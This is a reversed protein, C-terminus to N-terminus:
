SIWYNWKTLDFYDSIEQATRAKDEIIIEWCTSTWSWNVNRWLWLNNHWTITWFTGTTQDQQVGDIYLTITTATKIWTFLHVWVGWYSTKYAWYFNNNYIMNFGADAWPWDWYLQWSPYWMNDVLFMFASNPWFWSTWVNITFDSSLWNLSWWSITARQLTCMNDSFSYTWSTASFNHNNWSYDNLDSSLPRYALTNVWPQWGWGGSTSYIFYHKGDSEAWPLLANYEAQTAYVIEAWSTPNQWAPWNNTQTLVQWETWWSPVEGVTVAWANGNVSTVWSNYITAGSSNFTIWIWTGAIMEAWTDRQTTTWVWANTLKYVYVEDLQTSSQSHSSRSRYYQFEVETPTWQWATYAMFAMRYGSSWSSVRCYVIANENYADIFNQWTSVGYELVVMKTWETQWATWNYTKLEDNVTDYRLMWEVPSSPAVNSIEWPHKWNLANTIVNNEVPNTSTTSLSSDIAIQRASNTLLLWNTGDYLYFDSVAVTDTEVTTSAQWIIYSSGNPRYNTGWGSAVNSVSYYDWAKYPYPNETPNTVPLGTACNWNSLFRWRSAINQLYDYLVKWQKASLADDTSTSYLNDIVDPVLVNVAKNADPTLATGNVKVTEITNVQAWAEVSDIKQKINDELSFERSDKQLSIEDAFYQQRAKTAM